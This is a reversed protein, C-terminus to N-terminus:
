QSEVYPFINTSKLDPCQRYLNQFLINCFNSFLSNEKVKLESPNIVASNNNNNNNSHVIDSDFNDNNNDDNDDNEDNEDNEKDKDKNKDIDNKNIEDNNFGFDKLIKLCIDRM